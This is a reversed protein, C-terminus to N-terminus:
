FFGMKQKKGDGQGNNGEKGKGREQIVKNHTSCTLRDGGNVKGGKNSGRKKEENVSEGSSISFPPSGGGKRDDTFRAEKREKAGEVAKEEFGQLHSTKKKKRCGNKKLGEWLKVGGRRLNAKGRQFVCNKQSVKHFIGPTIRDGEGWGGKVGWCLGCCFCNLNDRL